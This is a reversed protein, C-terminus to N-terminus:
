EAVEKPLFRRGPPKRFEDAIDPHAAALATGDVRGRKDQNWTVVVQGNFVAETADGMFAMIEADITDIKEQNDKIIAKYKARVKLNTHHTGSLEIQKGAEPQWRSRLTSVDSATVEPPDRNIVKQWFAAEIAILDAILNPNM